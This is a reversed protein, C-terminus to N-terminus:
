YQWLYGYALDRKGTCCQSIHSHNFGLTREVEMVCGWEKIFEGDLSYQFVRKSKHNLIGRKSEANRKYTIPNHCNEKDTVWRLNEARNDTKVANIHDIQPKNETNPIFAQAVLRAVKFTHRIKNMYLWVMLYGKGDPSAKLIRTKTVFSGRYGEVLKPLSRVRGLNSVEYRGEYGIVPRWIEDKM